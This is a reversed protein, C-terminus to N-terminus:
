DVASPSACVVEAHVPPVRVILEYVQRCHLGRRVANLLETDQGITKVCLVPAVGTRYHVHDRFRAGVIQVSIYILKKSVCLQVGIRIAERSYITNGTVLWLEILVLEPSCKTSRDDLIPREKKSRIFSPANELPNRRPEYKDRRRRLTGTCSM